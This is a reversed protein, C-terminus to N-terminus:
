LAGGVVERRSVYLADGIVHTRVPVEHARCATLINAQKAARDCGAIEDLNIKVWQGPTNLSQLLPGYLYPGRKRNIPPLNPAVEFKM